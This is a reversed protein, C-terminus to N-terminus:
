KKIYRGKIWGHPIEDSLKIKKNEVGSTIWITGYQSNKELIGKGKKSESMKQKTEDTHSKDLWYTKLRKIADVYVGNLHRNKQTKSVKSTYSSRYESNTKLLQNHKKNASIARQKQQEESIFGGEGGPRLNLCNPNQLLENNVLDKEKEVLLDRNDFFELIQLNFNEKGYKKISYKLRKGSGLYSDNLNNTSHIGIYFMGNLLNITKYLYHYKKLKRSNTMYIFIGCIWFFDM